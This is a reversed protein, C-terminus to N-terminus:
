KEKRTKVDRIWSVLLMVGATILMIGAAGVM